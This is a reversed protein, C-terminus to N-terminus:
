YNVNVIKNVLSNIEKMVNCLTMGEDYKIQAILTM